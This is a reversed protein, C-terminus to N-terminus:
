EEEGMQTNYIDLYQPCTRLLEEHTGQGIIHGEDMVIIQDLSMISSVRQAVILTTTGSYHELIAKRLAADTKYDLASSSDDLLLIEPGGALARSILVRQRQGGSLDAGHVATRHEYGDAYNEIFEAARADAAAKRMADQSVARGFSINRALTDAFIVDNQFVVGFRRRLQAPSYTRADKGDIFVHGRTPDYFRMLLNFITTKGCGTPGIIGLSGGKKVSFSIHELSMQREEGAFNANEDRSDEGYRFSVDEFRIYGEGNPQAAEKEPIAFLEEGTHIVAAIRQASANAKSMTLFTRSLGMVGSLIINFYTLFALIVGPETKGSNVRMAGILVVLTLGMNLFLTLLPSPLSMTITAARDRRTMDENAATFRQKEHEEKSLAKVVRIGSINERMVRTIIDVGQQVKAYMPIGKLSVLVVIVVAIPAIVCLISGLGPDMIVSIIMGGILMLPARVGITQFMRTFDQVNYSDSTMRSILSPLGFDDMQNGSLHISHWFLDRRIEYTCQASTKLAKRNSIINLWRILAAMALMVAGWIFIMPLNRTPAVTDILHELIYPLLLEIFAAVTKLFIAFVVMWRYKKLYSFIMRLPLEGKHVRYAFDLVKRCYIM